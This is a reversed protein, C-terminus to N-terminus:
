TGPAPPPRRPTPLMALGDQQTLAVGSKRDLQMAFVRISVFNESSLLTSLRWWLLLPYGLRRHRRCTLLAIASWVRAFKASPHSGKPLFYIVVRYFAHYISTCCGRRKQFIYVADIHRYWRTMVHVISIRAELTDNRRELPRHGIEM